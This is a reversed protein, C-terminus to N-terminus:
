GDEGPQRDGQAPPQGSAGAKADGFTAHARLAKWANEIQFAKGFRSVSDFGKVVKGDKDKWSSVEVLLQRAATVDGGVRRLIEDGLAKAKEAVGDEAVKGAQRDSSTGYGMGGHSKTVDVGLKTLVEAPVKRLGSLIRTVKADLGTRCAAKLDQLTGSGTFPKDSRVAYYIGEIPEGTLACLGDAWMEAITAEHAGTVAGEKDRDEVTETSIKPTPVGDVLPRYNFISIGLWKRMQVAASDRPVGVVRGDRDKYLTWDYGHSSKIAVERLKALVKERAVLRAEIKDPDLLALDTVSQDRLAVASGPNAPAEPRGHEREEREIEEPVFPLGAQPASPRAATSM